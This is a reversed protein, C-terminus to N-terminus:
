GRFEKIKGEVFEKFERVFRQRHFRDANNRIVFPDFIHAVKEFHHIADTLSSITQYPFLLGTQNPIVTELAGGKGLAIVPTGCAQAEVMTIGFDEEAAFIFAKARQLYDKLIEFPQYGLLEVNPTALSKIKTFDPGDGIVVLRKDPMQSFAEVILNMKKYPVMRSITLYFDEKQERVEFKDVDVPPYIVTAERNYIKKIRRAIFASNAVYHDVRNATTFDWLRIYHLVMKAIWGKLGRHLNAEELYQHYLDWAYRVPSHCYCIHLQNPNTLAGKAVTHSSSIVLEYKRLDFQEIAYPFLPLYNRYGKRAFPLRQIFSTHVDCTSFYSNKIFEDNKFLTYIPSPFAMHISELVKESGAMMPLWEHVIASEIIQM